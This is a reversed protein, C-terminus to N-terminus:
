PSLRLSLEGGKMIQIGDPTKLRLGGTADVGDAIGPIDDAGTKIVVERGCFRDLAEWQERFSAFGSHEFTQLMLLLQSLVAAALQNRSVGPCVDEVRSWAQDIDAAANAPMRHNVGVGLVVQCRGAPDGTMELLIGAVKGENLLIDNPWKLGAGSVGLSELAKVVAVGTALSLGELAAAGQFFTWVCSVYLNTAFPSVWTRGRRGRGATQQEALCVAGSTAGQQAWATAVDNTSVVQSMIELRSMLGAAQPVMRSRISDADLLELPQALRYGKGKVSQIDLGTQQLKQIQKWIAARSIQLTAGLDDGAHFEGDALLKLLAEM